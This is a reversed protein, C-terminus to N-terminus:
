NQKLYNIIKKLRDVFLVYSCSLILGIIGYFIVIQKRKPSTRENPIVAEKITTFVPTDKTVQLKAQEVQKSLETVVASIIEFEAQLKEKENIVFSNVLNLNSDSFYALKSQIEDFELKKENLQKQSFNLNQRASEIKNEIIINQLIERSIKTVVASYKADPMMTSITIFGEKQNTNVSIIGSLIKFCAEELKTMELVSSVSEESDKIKYHNIIFNKLSLNEEDNIVAELLIRKFKPSDGIQPYISAPIDGGFSSSGLNIGVLSAVGSLNSTSGENNQTIFVTSSSYSIPSLLAVLVGVFSFFILSLFIIKRSSYLKKLIEILDIEDNINTNTNM